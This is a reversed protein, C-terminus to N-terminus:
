SVFCFEASGRKSLSSSKKARATNLAIGLCTDALQVWPLWLSLHFEVTCLLLTLADMPHHTWKRPPLSDARTSEDPCLLCKLAPILRLPAPHPEWNPVWTLAPGGSLVLSYAIHSVMLGRPHPCPCFLSSLAAASPARVSRLAQVAM